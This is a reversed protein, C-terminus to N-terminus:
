CVSKEVRESEVLDDLTEKVVQDLDLQRGRQLATELEAPPLVDQLLQHIYPAVQAVEPSTHPHSMALGLLEAAHVANGTRAWVGALGALTELAMPTTYFYTAERLGIRYNKLAADIQEKHLAVHGLTNHAVALGGHDGIERCLQIAELQRTEAADYDGRVFSMWALNIVLATQVPRNGSKECLDLAQHWHRGAAEFDGQDMCTLGMFNLTHALTDSANQVQSNDLSQFITLGKELYQMAQTYERRYYALTGLSILARSRTEQDNVTEAHALATQALCTADFNQGRTSMAHSMSLSARAMTKHDGIEQALDLGQRLYAMEQDGGYPIASETGIRCLLEARRPDDVPFLALARKLYAVAEVYAGIRASGNGAKWLWEAAAQNEGAQEYHWGIQGSVPDSHQAYVISLAEAAQKHLRRRRTASLSAYAVQRLKDHSFDYANKGQERIVRRQWLEDLADVLTEEDQGSARCLVEFTFERGIVAALHMTHQAPQSLQTLRSAVAAQVLPPLGATGVDEADVAQALGARAFEVIFLPNGETERYLSAATEADMVQGLASEGLRTTDMPNLPQLGIETLLSRRRLDALLTPLPGDEPTAESRLTGVVLLRARANYRLLYNLWALTDGDCWQLDELLFLHPQCETLDAGLVARALAEHFRQRQWAQTLPGPINVGSADKALEPLLRAIESRWVLELHSLSQARLWTTVPAYASAGEAAYCYASSVPLGQRDVWALLEEALRTKGIGAEGSILVLRPNGQAASQWTERLRAWEAARGVLPFAGALPVGQASNGKHSLLCEYVQRTAPSPAVNLERQLLAACQQYAYLAAARDGKLDYLRMVHRHVEERLPDNHLLQQAFNLAATYDGADEKQRILHELTQQYIQFLREREPQIWEDYMGPLFDGTYLAAAKEFAGAALASEFDTVDSTFPADVRWQLLTGDCKLFVDTEPLAQRLFLITKRLNTRAQSDPANPWLLAALWQRAQPTDRHLVLYALLSQLRPSHFGPVPQGAATLCFGGFLKIELHPPM